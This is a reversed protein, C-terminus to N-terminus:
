EEMGGLAHPGAAPSLVFFTDKISDGVSNLETQFNDLYEHLGKKIIDDIRAYTLEAHLRGMRREAENRFMGAPTGTISHLSAEAMLVCYLIARPFHRDLLLFQVVSEPTIQEYKRRYMDLASASKLLAAWQINDIPTGVYEPKPLLIFYKVDILRSTKDARELLRGLRAFHWDEGRNMTSDAIGAYLHSETKVRQYFDQPTEAAVGSLASDRVFYYFKNIQEWMESSIIERISRANERVRTLTSLISNPNERDFTLFDLVTERTAEDGCRERFIELDGTTSVLAEWQGEETQMDLMLHLNVEIFRAVNEAREMYRSMWYISNAVRSLM